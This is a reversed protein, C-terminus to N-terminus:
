SPQGSLSPVGLSAPEGIEEFVTLNKPKFRKVAVRIGQAGENELDELYGSRADEAEKRTLFPGFYYICNPKDTVIEVWCALGLNNLIDTMAEKM